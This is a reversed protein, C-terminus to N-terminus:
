AASQACFDVGQNISEAIGNTEMQGTALGMIQHPSVRQQRVHLRIHQKGILGEIGVLSYDLWEGGRSLGRHDRRFGIAFLGPVKIPLHIRRTMEDLVEEGFELLKARDGCTIILGRPVKECGDM